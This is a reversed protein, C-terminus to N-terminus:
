CFVRERREDIVVIQIEIIIMGIIIMECEWWYYLLHDLKGVNKRANMITVIIEKIM